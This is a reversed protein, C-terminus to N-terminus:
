LPLTLSPRSIAMSVDSKLSTGFVERDIVAGNKLIRLLDSMVGYLAKVCSGNHGYISDAHYKLYIILAQM